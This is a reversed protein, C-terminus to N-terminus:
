LQITLSKLEVPAMRYPAKSIPITDSELEIAFDIERHPPLRPLEEPFVDPYDRVVPESSLSVDVERTDVVSALISWTGELRAHLVIASSIFSYSLGFDFLVLAYHGLVPLTGIVVIGAREAESKNTAFVKGRSVLEPGLCVVVWITSGVPPVYLSGEPLKGLGQIDLRLGRVFKDARVAETAIMELGFRSLMDFDADYKSQKWTIHGVDGRLMRETTKWCGIDKDNLMFIACQVKQDDPCEMYWFITEVFFLWMQAKTPDVPAQASAPPALQQSERMQMILDRFRQEMATLNAHTVPAVPDTAQARTPRGRANGKCLVDPCGYEMLLVVLECRYIYIYLSVAMTGKSIGLSIRADEPIVLSIRADEPIVLSIRADKSIVLSIRAHDPIVLSIRADKTM